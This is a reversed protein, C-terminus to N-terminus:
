THAVSVSDLEMYWLSIECLGSLPKGGILLLIDPQSSNALDMPSVPQHETGRRKEIVEAAVFDKESSILHSLHKNKSLTSETKKACLETDASTQFARLGLPELPQSFTKMEIESVDENSFAKYAPQQRFYRGFCAQQKSVRLLKRHDKHKESWHNMPSACSAEPAVQFSSGLGLICHYTKSSMNVKATHALKSWTQSSFHYKWLSSQPRSSSIGGGFILMSDRFVVSSHGVVKPPGQSTRISSWNRSTFDWKWLDKQESLGMLGGFLYMGTSYVVASHGHRPGPGTDYSLASICSWEGTDFSLAWFEQSIGKIDFYGGYVYMSSSYVVASHGKRNAPATSETEAETHRCETWRASDIDYMWLPAKTQTFASDLMGGFVCLMGQYAVMSHEELEEPGDGSGHLMEWENSEISYRWFDSLNTTHRGGHLYVFGKCICCAHKYRDCPSSKSQPIPKWVCEATKGKM